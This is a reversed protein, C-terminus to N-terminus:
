TEHSVGYNDAVKRLPEKNKLVRQLVIPWESSPIGYTINKPGPRRQKEIVPSSSIQVKADEALLLQLKQNLKGTPALFLYYIPSLTTTARICVNVASRRSFVVRCRIKNWNRLSAPRM